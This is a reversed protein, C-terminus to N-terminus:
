RRSSFAFSPRELDFETNRAILRFTRYLLSIKINIMQKSTAMRPPINNKFNLFHDIFKLFVVLFKIFYNYNSWIYKVILYYCLKYTNLNYNLRFSQRTNARLKSNM